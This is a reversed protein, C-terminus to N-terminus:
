SRRGAPESRRRPRRAPEEPPQIREMLRELDDGLSDYRQEPAPPRNRELEVVAYALPVFAVLAAGVVVLAASTFLGVVVLFAGFAMAGILLRARTQNFAM